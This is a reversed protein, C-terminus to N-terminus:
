EIIAQCTPSYPIGTLHQIGWRQFFFRTAHAVYGPRNDTKITKPVGLVAFALLFYKCVDKAKEGTHVSVFVCTSFADISVHVYHLKGLEPIHTVDTQWIELSSLGRPNVGISPTPAVTQCDPCSQIVQRAQDTTLQFAHQLAKANQHYFDVFQDIAGALKDAQENCNSIPGPLSSHSRVHQIFYSESRHDLFWKLCLLLAFLQM